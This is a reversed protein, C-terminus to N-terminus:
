EAAYRQERWPDGLLHYGNRKAIYGQEGHALVHSARAEAGAQVLLDSM